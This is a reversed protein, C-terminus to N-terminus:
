PTSASRLKKWDKYWQRATVHAIPQQKTIAMAASEISKFQTQLDLWKFVEAKMSRSEAHVADAGKRRAETFTDLKGQLRDISIQVHKPPKLRDRLSAVRLLSNSQGGLQEAIVADDLYKLLALPLVTNLPNDFNAGSAALGDIFDFVFMVRDCWDYEAWAEKMGDIGTPRIDLNGAEAMSLIMPYLDDCAMEYFESSIRVFESDTIGDPFLQKLCQFAIDGAEWADHDLWCSGREDVMSKSTRGLQADGFTAHIDYALIRPVRSYAKVKEDISDGM